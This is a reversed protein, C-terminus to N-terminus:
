NKRMCWKYRFCKEMHDNVMGVAQMHAYCITSGFFKFGRKKMDASLAEAEKITTKYDKQTKIKHAMQKNKLFGWMYKSFSGFEKQIKLFGQANSITSTIKLRNRIINSDRMLRGVDALNFKAIKNVDFNKFAKKYGERKKLITEWSLGAQASELVIFEFLKQDDFVPVGWEEDHYKEYLTNGKPVWDCRIIKNNIKKPM